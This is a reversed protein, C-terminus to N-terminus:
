FCFFWEDRQHSMLKLPKMTKGKKMEKVERAKGHDITIYLVYISKKQLNPESTRRIYTKVLSYIFSQQIKCRM